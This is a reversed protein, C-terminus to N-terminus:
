ECFFNWNNQKDISIEQLWITMAPSCKGVSAPSQSIETFNSYRYNLLYHMLGWNALPSCCCKSICIALQLQVMSCSAYAQSPCPASQLLRRCCSHCLRLQQLQKQPLYVLSVIWSFHWSSLLISSSSSSSLSYLAASWPYTASLSSFISISIFIRVRTGDGDLWKFNGGGEGLFVPRPLACHLRGGVRQTPQPQLADEGGACHWISLLLLASHQTARPRLSSPRIPRNTLSNYAYELSYINDYPFKRKLAIVFARQWLRGTHCPLTVWCVDIGCLFDFNCCTSTQCCNPGGCTKVIIYCRQRQTSELIVVVVGGRHCAASGMWLDVAHPLLQLFNCAVHLMSLAVCTSLCVVIPM